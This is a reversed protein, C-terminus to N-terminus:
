GIRLYIQMTYPRVIADVCTPLVVQLTFLLGCDSHQSDHRSIHLVRGVLSMDLMNAHHTGVQMAGSASGDVSFRQWKPSRDALVRLRLDSKALYHAHPSM